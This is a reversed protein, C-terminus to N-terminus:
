RLMKTLEKMKKALTKDAELRKAFRRIAMTVAPYQMGGALQGLERLTKDSYQLGFYLAAALAGNGHGAELTEWDQGWQESVVATIAPWTLRGVSAQRVGTQERRNGKPLSTVQEVFNKSGLLLTAKLEAKWDTELEGVAAAEELQQRYM